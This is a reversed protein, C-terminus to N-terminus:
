LNDHTVTLHWRSQHHFKQRRRGGRTMYRDAYTKQVGESVGPQIHYLDSPKRLQEHLRAVNDTHVHPRRAFLKQGTQQLHCGPHQVHLVTGLLISVCRFCVLRFSNKKKFTLDLIRVPTISNIKLMDFM